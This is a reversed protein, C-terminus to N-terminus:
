VFIKWCENEDDWFAGLVYLRKADEISVEKGYEIHLYLEDHEACTNAKPYKNIIQLVEILAEVTHAKPDTPLEDFEAYLAERDIDEEFETM